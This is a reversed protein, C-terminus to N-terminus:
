PQVGSNRTYAIEVGGSGGVENGRANRMVATRKVALAGDETLEFRESVRGVGSLTRQM